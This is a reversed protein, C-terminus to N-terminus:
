RNALLKQLLFVVPPKDRDIGFWALNEYSASGKRRKRINWETNLRKEGQCSLGPHDYHNRKLVVREVDPPGEAGIATDGEEGDAEAHPREDGTEDHDSKKPPRKLVGGEPRAFGERESGGIDARASARRSALGLEM